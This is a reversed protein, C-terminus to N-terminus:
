QMGTKPRTPTSVPSGMIIDTSFPAINEKNHDGELKGISIRPRKPSPDPTPVQQVKVNDGAANTFSSSSPSDPQHSRKGLVSARRTQM